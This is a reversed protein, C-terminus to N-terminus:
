LFDVRGDKINIESIFKIHIVNGERLTLTNDYEDRNKIRGRIKKYAGGAKTKDPIFYTIEVLSHNEIAYNLKGSIRNKEEESLEKYNDTIRITDEIADDHGTLAAFPAFQAARHSMPMPKHYDSVHHPLNIIDDYKGM